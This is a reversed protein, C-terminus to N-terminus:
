NPEVTSTQNEVPPQIAQKLIGVGDYNSLGGSKLLVDFVANLLKTDDQNEIIIKM